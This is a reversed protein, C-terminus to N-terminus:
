ITALIFYLCTVHTNVYLAINYIKISRIHLDSYNNLDYLNNLFSLRMSNKGIEILSATSKIRSEANELRIRPM